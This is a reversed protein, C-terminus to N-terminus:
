EEPDSFGEIHGNEAFFIFQFIIHELKKVDGTGIFKTGDVRIDIWDSESSTREARSHCIGELNTDSLDVELLWGPNDLTDIKIGFQHEWDGNCQDEYWQRLKSLPADLSGGSQPPTQEM